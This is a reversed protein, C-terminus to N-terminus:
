RASGERRVSGIRQRREVELFVLLATIDAPNVGGIRSAQGITQPRVQLAVTVNANFPFDSVACCVFVLSCAASRHERCGFTLSCRYNFSVGMCHRHCKQAYRPLSRGPKRPSPVSARTTWLSGSAEQAGQCHGDGAAAEPAPHFGEYKLEVEVCEKEGETMEENPSGLGHKELLSYKVNPRRVIQDLPTGPRIAGSISQIEAAERTSTPFKEARLRRKEEEIRGQKAQFVEWQTDGVLGLERGIPTLRADANDSRLLLRFESRSTLMRYPERLDKTVLDDILTGIYSSERELVLLPKGDAYRAANVGAVLGQAAAEEYGTTGNIQGSFFLGALKKTMLTRECQVAPLFDYEVAYAPRLMKCNELGPLTRLLPLQLREPLGTSFGQVYLEPV